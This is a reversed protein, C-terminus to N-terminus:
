NATATLTTTAQYTGSTVNANANITVKFYLSSTSGSGPTQTTRLITSTAVTSLGYWCSAVSATDSSGTNCTTGNDLFKQALDSTTSAGVTYGFEYGTPVSYAFDPISSNAPTYDPISSVGDYSKMAPSSSAKITMTYGAQDNTLVIVTSTGNSTGGTIGGLQPTMTVDTSPTSFSIEATVVQTITLQDEIALSLAPELGVFVFSLVFLGLFAGILSDRLYTKADIKSKIIKIKM